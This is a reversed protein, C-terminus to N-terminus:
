PEDTFTPILFSTLISLVMLGPKLTVTLIFLVEPSHVYAFKGTELKNKEKLKQKM